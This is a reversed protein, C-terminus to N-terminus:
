PPLGDAPLLNSLLVRLTAYGPRQFPRVAYALLVLGREAFAGGDVLPPRLSAASTCRGRCFYLAVTAIAQITCRGPWLTLFAGAARLLPYWCWHRCRSGVHELREAARSAAGDEM